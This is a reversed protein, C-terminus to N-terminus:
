KPATLSSAPPNLKLLIIESKSGLRMRPGWTGTGTSVYLQLNEYRYLGKIHPFLRRLYFNFPFIQGNHTHGSLMLDIGAKSAAKLGEPRHYLLVAFKTPDIEINKLRDAVNNEDDIGIIQLGDLTVSENRLTRVKTTELLSLVNALGAYREHNGLVFFVPASLDNLRALAAGDLRHHSDVLDGTIVVVDPNLSNTKEVIRSLFKGSVSGLHIDSLQAINMNVTAPVDVTRIHLIRANIMAYISAISTIALVAIGGYPKQIKVIINIVEFAVLCTLLLIGVGMWHSALVYLLKTLANGFRQELIIAGIFSFTLIVLLLAFIFRRKIRLLGFLRWLIYFNGGFYIALFTLFFM